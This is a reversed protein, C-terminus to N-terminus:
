DQNEAALKIDELDKQITKKLSGKLMWGTLANMVKAGLSVAEGEFFQTLQTEDGHKSVSLGSQYISGHSEARTRYSEGDVVDTIWMVETAEKGWLKRTEKWKFDVLGSKPTKLVEIKEIASIHQASNKIDTIIGWVRDVPADIDISVEVRM